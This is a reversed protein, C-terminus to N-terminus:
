PVCRTCYAHIEGALKAVIFESEFGFEALGRPLAVENYVPSGHFWEFGVEIFEISGASASALRCWGTLTAGAIAM